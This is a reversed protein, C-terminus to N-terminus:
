PETKYIHTFDLRPGLASKPAAPDCPATCSKGTRGPYISLEIGALSGNWPGVADSSLGNIAFSRWLTGQTTRVEIRDYDSGFNASQVFVTARCKGQADLKCPSPLAVIQAMPRVPSEVAGPVTLTQVRDQAAPPGSQCDTDTDYVDFAIPGGWTLPGVQVSGSGGAAGCHVTEGSQRRIWLYQNEFTEADWVLTTTCSQGTATCPNFLAGVFLHEEVEPNRGEWSRCSPGSCNELKALRAALAAKRTQQGADDHLSTEELHDEVVDYLSEHIAGTAPPYSLYKWGQTRVGYSQAPARAETDSYERELLMAQRWRDLPPAAPRLLPVLSRGSVTVPANGGALELFTRALDVNGVLHQRVGGAPVEPGVVYLPVRVDEEFFTRKGSPLHHEGFHYGNDSTFVIYTNGLRGTDFLADLVGDDFSPPAGFLLDEVAELARLANRFYDDMEPRVMAENLPMLAQLWTPKDARDEFQNDKDPATVGTFEGDYRTPGVPNALYKHPAVPSIWLFLPEDPDANTIFEVAEQRLYDTSYVPVPEQSSDYVTVQTEEDECDDCESYRSGYYAFMGPSSGARLVRWTDWHPPVYSSDFSGYNPYWNFFKGFMATEYGLAQLGKAVVEEELGNDKFAKMGGYTSNPVEWVGHNHSYEGLLFNTRSPCCVSTSVFANEFSTGQAVLGAQVRDLYPAMDTNMDDLLVFVIDPRDPDGGALAPAAISLVLLTALVPVPHITRTV